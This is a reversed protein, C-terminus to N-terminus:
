RVLPSWSPDSGQIGDPLRVRRENHGTVDITYLQTEDGRQRSFLIVRGNPSWVPSEDMWSDTLARVRRGKPDIVAIKFRGGGGMVFAIQDGRPSWVPAANYRGEFTIREVDSGDVDMVYLQPSGGRNSNFVIKDGKPSFSPSTDIARNHTLRTLSRDKLDMLYIEANGDKTLTMAMKEGDPSWAPASNLGPFGALLKKKGTYLEWQFIRPTGTEYSLYFLSEGNPSFRPTLVLDGEKALGVLNAGDQDMLATWKKGDKKAVFAIRSAFYGKEGTLRSYIEDAIRHAIHRWDRVRATFRKGRGVPRGQFVDYLYFDAVLRVGQVQVAGTVLTEAGLLRWDRFRPSQRLRWVNVPDPIFSKPNLPRFLGSRELDATVVSTIGRGLESGKKALDPGTVEVFEPIAIPLPDLGAKTIDITLADAKGAGGLFLCVALVAM